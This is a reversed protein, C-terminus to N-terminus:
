LTDHLRYRLLAVIFRHTLPNTMPATTIAPAMQSKPRLWCDFVGAAPRSRDSSCALWSAPAASPRAAVPASCVACCVCYCAPWIASCVVLSTSCAAPANSCCNPWYDRGDARLADCKRRAGEAEDCRREPAQWCLRVFRLLIVYHSPM